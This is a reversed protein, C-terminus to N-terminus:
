LPIALRKRLDRRTLGKKVGLPAYGKKEHNVANLRRKQSDLRFPPSGAIFFIEFFAVWIIFTVLM